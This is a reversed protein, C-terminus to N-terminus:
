ARLSGGTTVPGTYSLAVRRADTNAGGMGVDTSVNTNTNTNATSVIGERGVLPAMMMASVPTFM